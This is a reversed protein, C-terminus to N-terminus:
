VCRKFVTLVERAYERMFKYADEQVEHWFENGNKKELEEYVHKSCAKAMYSYYNIKSCGASIAAQVQDADVGSGGHM